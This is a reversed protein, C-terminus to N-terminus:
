SAVLAALSIFGRRRAAHSRRVSAGIFGRTKEDLEEGWRRALDVANAMDPDRLLLQRQVNSAANQWRGRQEESRDRTELDRQDQAIQRKAREWHTLLAEHAFRVRAGAGDGDAVLLRVQPALLADVLRSEASGDAFQALAAPRGTATAASRSTTVLARLVRPLAAQVDASLNVFAAEARNAIAGRLGGLGRMSAFTLTARGEGIDAKYLEDLLFSLLPLVGPENAAESALTAALGIEGVPDVEFEIGAAETPRRIMEFIEDQTAPLLDLRGEGAAMEVLLPTEAARHWYDSRMTALVYVRGSRALADLCRIFAAREDATITGATFLEEM